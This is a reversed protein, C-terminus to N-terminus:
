PNPTPQVTWTTGNWAEALTFGAGALNYYQGVAVCRDARPCVVADLIARYGPTVPVLRRWSRGDWREALAVNTDSFLKLYEGVAICAAATHCSVGNLYTGATRAPAPAPVPRIVWAKGTWGEALALTSGGPTDYNGVAACSAPGSCSVGQLIGGGYSKPNPIPQLKWTTGNWVEALTAGVAGSTFGEWDGVAQCADAATCSVGSLLFSPGGYGRPNPTPTIKWSTGDLVEALTVLVSSTNLYWGVAACAARSTCAVGNLSTMDHGPPGAPRPIAQVRWATGNWVEALPLQRIGIYYYGVATCAGAAVCSVSNLQSSTGGKPEPVTVIRWATGNWVEALVGSSKAGVAVCVDRGPCAVSYLNNWSSAGAPRVPGAAPRVPPAAARPTTAGAASPAAMMASVLAPVMVVAAIIKRVTGRRGGAVPVRDASDM